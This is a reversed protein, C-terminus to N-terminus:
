YSTFFLGLSTGSPVPEPDLNSPARRSTQDWHARTSPTMQKTERKRSTNKQTKPRKDMRQISKPTELGPTNNNTPEGNTKRLAESGCAKWPPRSKRDINPHIKSRHKKNKSLLGPYEWSPPLVTSSPMSVGELHCM